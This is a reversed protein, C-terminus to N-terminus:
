STVVLRVGAATVREVVAAKTCVAAVLMPGLLAAVAVCREAHDTAHRRMDDTLLLEADILLKVRKGEWRRVLAMASPLDSVVDGARPVVIVEVGADQALRSAIEADIASRGEGGWARLAARAPEEDAIAGSWGVVRGDRIPANAISGETGAAVRAFTTGDQNLYILDTMATVRPRESLTRCAAFIRSVRANKRHGWAHLTRDSRRGHTHHSGGVVNMQKELGWLGRRSEGNRSGGEDLRDLTVVGRDSGREERIEAVVFQSVVELM